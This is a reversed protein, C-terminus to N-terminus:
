WLSLIVLEIRVRCQVAKELSFEQDISLQERKIIM